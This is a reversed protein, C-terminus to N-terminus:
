VIFRLTASRVPYSGNQNSRILDEPEPDPDSWLIVIDYFLFDIFFLFINKQFFFFNQFKKLFFLVLLNRFLFLCIPIFSFLRFKSLVFQSYFKLVFIRIRVQVELDHGPLLRGSGCCQQVPLM